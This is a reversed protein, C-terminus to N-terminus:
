SLRSDSLVETVPKKLWRHRQSNLVAYSLPMLMRQMTWGLSDVRCGDCLPLSHQCTDASVSSGALVASLRRPSLSSKMVSNLFFNLFFFWFLCPYMFSIAKCTHAVSQVKVYLCIHMGHMCVMSAYIANTCYMCVDHTVCYVHMCLHAVIIRMYGHMSACIRYIYTQM